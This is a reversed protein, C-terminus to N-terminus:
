KGDFLAAVGHAPADILIDKMGGLLGMGALFTGLVPNYLRELGRAKGGLMGEGTFMTIFGAAFVKGASGFEGVGFKLNEVASKGHDVGWTQPNSEAEGDYDRWKLFAKAEPSDVRAQWTQDMIALIKEDVLGTAPLGNATQLEKLADIFEPGVTKQGQLEPYGSAELLQSLSWVGDSSSGVAFSAGDRMAEAVEQGRISTMSDVLAQAQPDFGGASGAAGAGRVSM